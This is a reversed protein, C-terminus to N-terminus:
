TADEFENPMREVRTCSIVPCKFFSGPVTKINGKGKKPLVNAVDLPVRREHVVM